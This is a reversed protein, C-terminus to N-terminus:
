SQTPRKPATTLICQMEFVIGLETYKPTEDTYEYGEHIM